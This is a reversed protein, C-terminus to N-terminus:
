RFLHAYSQAAAFIDSQGFVGRVVALMDAGAEVLSAGEIPGIGGIAVVPIHLRAKVERLLQIDATVADPKTLSNFFAGLAVYDAGAEEMAVARELSNYCSAGIVATLGLLRRADSIMQDNCGLHVGDAGSSHALEVDDNIILPVHYAHCLGRLAQVEERRRIKDSSKDRYQVLVAGGRLAQGVQELLHASDMLLSDTIVYLGRLHPHRPILVPSLASM